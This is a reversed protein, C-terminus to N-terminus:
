IRGCSSISCTAGALVPITRLRQFFPQHIRDTGAVLQQQPQKLAMLHDAQAILLAFLEDVAKGSTGCFACVTASASTAARVSVASTFYFLFALGHGRTKKLRDSPIKLCNMRWINSCISYRRAKGPRCGQEDLFYEGSFVLVGNRQSAPQKL